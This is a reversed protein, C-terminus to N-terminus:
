TSYSFVVYKHSIWIADLGCLVKLTGEEGQPHLQEAVKASLSGEEVHISIFLMVFFDLDEVSM